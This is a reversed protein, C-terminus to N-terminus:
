KTKEELEKIKKKLEIMRMERGVTLKNFRELEEVKSELDRTREEVRKELEKSLNKLEKTRARVKVELTMRATEAEEQAEALSIFYKEINHTVFVVSSLVLSLSTIDVAPHFNHVDPHFVYIYSYGLISTLGTTLVASVNKFLGMFVFIAIYGAQTIGYIDGSMSSLAITWVLALSISAMFKVFFPNHRKEITRAMFWTGFVLILLILWYRDWALPDFSLLSATSQLIISMIVLTSFFVTLFRVDEIEKRRIISEKYRGERAAIKRCFDAVTAKGKESDVGEKKIFSSLLISDVVQGGKENVAKTFTLFFIYASFVYLEFSPWLATTSFLGVSKGKLGRMESIYRKMPLSVRTWNPSGLIVMDYASADTIEPKKIDVESHFLRLAQWAWLSKEKKPEIREVDVEYGKEVLGAEIKKALRETSGSM